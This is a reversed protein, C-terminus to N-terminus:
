PVAQWWSQVFFVLLVYGGACVALIIASKLYMQWCDNRSKGTRAFYEDVRQRLETLFGAADKGFTVKRPEDVEGMAPLTPGLPQDWSPLESVRPAEALVTRNSEM